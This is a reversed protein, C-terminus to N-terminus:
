PTGPIVTIAGNEFRVVFQKGILIDSLDEILYKTSEGLEDTRSYPASLNWTLAAAREWHPISKQMNSSHNFANFFLKYHANAKDIRESILDSTRATLSTDLATTQQLHKWSDRSSAPIWGFAPSPGTQLAYCYNKHRFLVVLTNGKAIFPAPGPAPNKSFAVANNRTIEVTDDMVACGKVIQFGAAGGLVAGRDDRILYYTKQGFACQM